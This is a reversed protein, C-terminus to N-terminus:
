HTLVMKYFVNLLNFDLFLTIPGNENSISWISLHVIIKIMLHSGTIGIVISSQIKGGRHLCEGLPLLCTAFIVDLGVRMEVEEGEGIDHLSGDDDVGM